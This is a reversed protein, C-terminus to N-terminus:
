SLRKMMIKLFALQIFAKASSTTMEYDKSLRRFNGLWAFSREVLWRWQQIQFGKAGNAPKIISLLCGGTHSHFWQQLDGQYGRDALIKILRPFKEKLGFLVKKACNSDHPTASHVDINIPYGMTDVVIHRKRGAIKKGGDYGKEENKLLVHKLV